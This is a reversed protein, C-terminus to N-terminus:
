KHYRISECSVKRFHFGCIALGIALPILRPHKFLSWFLLKWYDTREKGIIGLFLVSRFFAALYHAQFHIRRTQGQSYETLFRKVREYYCHPSYITRLIAQYGSILTDRNMKPIFNMSLDMHDGTIEHLLRGEKQLRAHLKTGRPANLLGVMATVIGSEQIFRTLRDFISPSDNDFGVIFGAQVQLGSRQVAKVCALLDRNKNQSKNCEDLSNEDPTEIGIFVTDFGAEVMLRMLEDDDALNISVETAFEFPYDKKRMWDVLAPLLDKKLRAKNGILNDDVFFVSGRWGTAYLYDLEQLMQGASKTRPKKGYLVTINCFECNFPCGRSYQINMSAYKKVNILDWEPIPTLNMDAWCGTSYVHKACGKELDNLFLPLTIEAENLILHDVEPFDDPNSTFLPGGAVTKVGKERCRQIVQRAYKQQISMASIFVYDAWEIDEDCLGTVQTDVLRKEWSKPLMAAVTLLGLPPSSAKKSIFKLAYKYSWFTDPHQPYVLLVRKDQNSM